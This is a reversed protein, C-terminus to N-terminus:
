PRSGDAARLADLEAKMRQVIEPNQAYQNTRQALDTELNFLEGPLDHDEIGLAARLEAPEGLPGTFKDRHIVFGVHDKNDPVTNLFANDDGTPDDIYVWPGERLAYKDRVSHLVMTSRDGTQSTLEDSLSPAFSFSDPGEQEGLEYGVIDALTAFVDVHSILADSTVGAEIVDPWSVIFPIRHGGEWLDRKVGRLGSTSDHEHIERRLYAIAEPGNDSTVFILTNDLIDAEELAAVIEGVANDFDVIYDGYHGVESVGIAEDSPALPTHPIMSAYYLFFPADADEINFRGGTEGRGKAGIYDVALDTFQRHADAIDFEDFRPPGDVAYGNEFLWRAGDTHDTYDDPTDYFTEGYGMGYWIKNFEYNFGYQRGTWVPKTYDISAESIDRGVRNPKAAVTWDHGLGWKGILATDYGMGKLLSGLTMRGDEIWPAGGIPANGTKIDTRWSYQGTILGYRSPGCITDSSHADVFLMGREAVADIHPTPIKSDPNYAGIDGYGLDDSNILVINPLARPSAVEGTAATDGDPASPSCASALATLVGLCASKFLTHRM